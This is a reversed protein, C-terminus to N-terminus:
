LYIYYSLKGKKYKIYLETEIFTNINTQRYLIIINNSHRDIYRQVNIKINDIFYGETNLIKAKRPNDTQRGKDNCKVKRWSCLKLHM